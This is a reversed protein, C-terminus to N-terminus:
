FNKLFFNYFKKSMIESNFSKIILNKGSLTKRKWKKRKSIFSELSKSIAKIDMPKILKANSHDLFECIGGVKTSVVPTGVYLAEALSYGFGEFDRTLSFFLDFNSLIILSDRNIYKIIKFHKNLKYNDIKKQLYRVDDNTGSGVFFIKYKLQLKKSLKSFGDILDSQGKYKEIRSLMGVKLIGRKTKFTNLKIKRIKKLFVGNHIVVNRKKLLDFLKTNKKITYKTAFSVFILGSIYKGIFLNFLNILNSWIKPKGYCHHILLHLNTRGLIRSAFISAMESRFDGYGGCDALLIDFDYKKIICYMQYISILFLVPKFLFFLIKLFINNLKIVNFSNYYIIKIKNKNCSNLIDKVALNTKNTIIVFKVGKFQVSNILSILHTTTGGYTLNEIVIAIKKLRKLKTM